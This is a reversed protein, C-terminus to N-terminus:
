KIESLQSSSHISQPIDRLPTDTRTATTASSPNYGEDQEGTVVIERQEDEVTPQATSTGPTFSFILGEGPSDYLQVQPLATEGTVVVRISNATAQTVAVRTIGSAPNDQRFERGQPLALVANPINAIYSRGLVLTVPQLVKGQTTQLIIEVGKDTPNVQVGTISVIEGPTAPPNTPSQVLMRDSTAPLEVESLQPINNNVERNNEGVEEGKAPTGLLVAIASGAVVIALLLRVSLRLIM